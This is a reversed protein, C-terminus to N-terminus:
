TKLWAIFLAIGMTLIPFIYHFTVTLTFQLRDIMVHDSVHREGEPNPDGRGEGRYPTGDHLPLSHAPSSPCSGRSACRMPSPSSDICIARNPAVPGVGRAALGTM